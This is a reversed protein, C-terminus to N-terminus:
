ILDDCLRSWGGERSLVGLVPSSRIRKPWRRVRPARCALTVDAGTSNMPLSPVCVGVVDLADDRLVGLVFVPCTQRGALLEVDDRLKLAKPMGAPSIAFFVRMALASTSVATFTPEDSSALL